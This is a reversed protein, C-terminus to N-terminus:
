ESQIYDMIDRYKDARTHTTVGGDGDTLTATQGDASIEYDYQSTRADMVSLYSAKLLDGGVASYRTNPYDAKIGYVEFVSNDDTVMMYTSEDDRTCRYVHMGQTGSKTIDTVTYATDAFTVAGDVVSIGEAELYGTSCQLFSGYLGGKAYVEYLGPQADDEWIGVFESVTDDSTDAVPEGETEADDVAGSADNDVAASTDTNGDDSTTVEINCGGMMGCLMAAILIMRVKRM